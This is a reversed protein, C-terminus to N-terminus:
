TLDIEVRSPDNGTGALIASYGWTGSFSRLGRRSARWGQCGRGSRRASRRARCRGSIGCCRAAPDAKSTSSLWRPPQAADATARIRRCAPRRWAANASVQRNALAVSAMRATLSRASTSRTFDLAELGCSTNIDTSSQPVPISGFSASRVKSVNKVWRCPFPDRSRGTSRRVDHHCGTPTV